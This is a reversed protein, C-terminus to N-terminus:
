RACQVMSHIRIHRCSCMRHPQSYILFVVLTCMLTAYPYFDAIPRPKPRPGEHSATSPTIACPIKDDEQLIRDRVNEPFLSALLARTRNATEEMSKKQRQTVHRDYLFLLFIITFALFVVIFNFLVTNASRFSERFLSSPYIDLTHVCLGDVV